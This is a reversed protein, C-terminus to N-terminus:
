QRRRSGYLGAGIGGVGAAGTGAAVGGTLGPRKLMGQGLKRLGGGLGVQAGGVKGLGPSTKITKAGAAMTKGGLKSTMRAIGTGLGAFSAKEIEYDGHDVGFASQM